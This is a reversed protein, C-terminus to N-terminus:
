NRYGPKMRRSELKGVGEDQDRHIAETTDPYDIGVHGAGEASEEEKLKHPGDPFIKGGSNTTGAWMKQDDIRRGSM